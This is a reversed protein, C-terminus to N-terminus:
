EHLAEPYSPGATMAYVLGHAPGRVTLSTHDKPSRPCRQSSLDGGSLSLDRIRRTVDRGCWSCRMSGPWEAIAAGTRASVAYSAWRREDAPDFVHMGRRCRADWRSVITKHISGDYEMPLISNSAVYCGSPSVLNRQMHPSSGSADRHADRCSADSLTGGCRATAFRVSMARTTDGTSGLRGSLLSDTRTAAANPDPKM